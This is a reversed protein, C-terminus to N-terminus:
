HLVFQILGPQIDRTMILLLIIALKKKWELTTVTYNSETTFDISDGGEYVTYGNLTGCDEGPDAVLIATYYEGCAIQSIDDFAEPLTTQSYNNNGWGVVVGNNQLAM